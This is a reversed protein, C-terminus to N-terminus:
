SRPSLRKKMKKNKPMSRVPPKSPKPSVEPTLPEFHADFVRKEATQCLIREKFIIILNEVINSYNPIFTSSQSAIFAKIEEIVSQLKLLEKNKDNLQEIEEERECLYLPNIMEEHNNLNQNYIVFNLHVLEDNQKTIIDRQEKIQDDKSSLLNDQNKKCHDIYDYLYKNEELVTDFDNLM